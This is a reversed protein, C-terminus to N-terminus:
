KRISLNDLNDMTEDHGPLKYGNDESEDPTNNKFSILDSVVEEVLSWEQLQVATVLRDTISNMLKDSSKFKTYPNIDSSVSDFSQESISSLM